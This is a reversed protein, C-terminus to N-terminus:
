SLLPFGGFDADFTSKEEGSTFYGPFKGRLIEEEADSKYIHLYLLKRARGPDKKKLANYSKKSKV